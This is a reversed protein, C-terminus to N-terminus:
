ITRAKLYNVALFSFLLMIGWKSCSWITVKHSGPASSMRRSKTITSNIYNRATKTPLWHCTLLMSYARAMAARQWLAGALFSWARVQRFPVVHYSIHYSTNDVVQNSCWAVSLFVLLCVLKKKWEDGGRWIVGGGVEKHKESGYNSLLHLLLHNKFHSLSSIETDKILTQFSFFIDNQFM